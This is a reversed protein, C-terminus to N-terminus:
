ELGNMVGGIQEPTVRTWNNDSIIFWSPELIYSKPNQMLYYGVVIEDVKDFPYDKLNRLYNVVAEGSPLSQVARENPVDRELSYYPRRYRYLRNEGWTTIIRTITTNSNSYVPYGQLFLQYEMIHKGINMSSLRFDSTFGGHDNVFEFSDLLLEKSPIPVISEATPYVYNIIRNQKDVTMFSTDDTYKESQENEANRQVITPDTFVINKFSEPLIEDILYRYKIGENIGPAVYLSRLSDREVEVYSTYNKSPQIVQTLFRQSNALNVYGQLLLRKETNLFLLQVQDQEEANSWDIILRTFSMDLQDKEFFPLVNSFTQMPIEGNFFLTARNNQNIIENMETDSINNNILKVDQVQWTILNRYLENLVGNSVTGTFVDNERFLVRYPKLVDQLQKRDGILVEEVQTEEILEYDPQYNWIILTLTVSLFVLFVLLFSKVQEVYKM